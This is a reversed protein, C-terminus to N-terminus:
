CSRQIDEGGKETIRNIHARFGEGTDGQYYEERQM